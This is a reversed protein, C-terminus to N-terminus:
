EATVTYPMAAALFDGAGGASGNKFVCVGDGAPVVFSNQNAAPSSVLHWNLSTDEYYADYAGKAPNWVCYQDAKSGTNSKTWNSGLNLQSLKTGIAYHTGGFVWSNSIMKTVGNVVATQGLLLITATSGGSVRAVSVEQYPYVVTNNANAGGGSPEWCGDTTNFFYSANGLCTARYLTVQDASTATSGGTLLLPSNTTGAGFLSALTDGPFICFADGAKVNYGSTTLWVNIWSAQNDSIDLTLSTTTNATILMIRGTENGSLFELFYPSGAAALDGSFPAATTAIKISNYTTSSVTGNYIPAATLPLSLCTTKGAPLSLQMVGAPVTTVGASAPSASLVLSLSAVLYFINKKM